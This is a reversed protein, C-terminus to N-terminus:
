RLRKQAWIDRPHAFTAVLALHHVFFMPNYNRPHCIASCRQLFHEKNNCSHSLWHSVVFSCCHLVTLSGCHEVTLSCTPFHFKSHQFTYVTPRGSLQSIKYVNKVHEVLWQASKISCSSHQGISLRFKLFLVYRSLPRGVSHFHQNKKPFHSEKASIRSGSRSLTRAVICSPVPAATSSPWRAPTCWQGPSSSIPSM